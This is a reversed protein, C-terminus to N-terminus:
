RAPNNQAPDRSLEFVGIIRATDGDGLDWRTMTVRWGQAELSQLLRLTPQRLPDSLLVRGGPALNAEFIRTLYPHLAESYLIDSGIIWDYRAPDQWDAWDVLRYDITEIGNLGANRRCVSMALEHRDTQVVRAGLAAAVLGPLGTGAGLELLAGDKLAAGRSALDYALAIAAPWLAVGFPLHALLERFFRLEDERTLILGAHRLRWERGALPMRYEQLPFEGATTTLVQEEVPLGNAV